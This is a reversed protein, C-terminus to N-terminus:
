TTDINRLFIINYNIKFLFGIVRRSIFCAYFSVFFVRFCVFHINRRRTCWLIINQIINYLIINHNNNCSVYIRTSPRNPLLYYHEHLFFIMVVGHRGANCCSILIINNYVRTVPCRIINYFFHCTKSFKFHVRLFFLQHVSRSRVHDHYNRIQIYLSFLFIIVM